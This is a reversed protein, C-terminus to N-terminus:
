EKPCRFMKDNIRYIYSDEFSRMKAREYREKSMMSTFQEFSIKGADLRKALWLIYNEYSIEILLDKGLSQDNDDKNIWRIFRGKFVGSAFQLKILEGREFEPYYDYISFEEKSIAEKEM